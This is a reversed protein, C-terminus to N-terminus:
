RLYIDEPQEIKSFRKREEETARSPLKGEMSLQASVKLHKLRNRLRDARLQPMTHADLLGSLRNFENVYNARKQSELIQHRRAVNDQIKTRSEAIFEEVEKRTPLRM